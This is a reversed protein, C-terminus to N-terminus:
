LVEAHAATVLPHQDLQYYRMLWYAYLYGIAAVHRNRRPGTVTFTLFADDKWRFATPRFNNIWVPQPATGDVGPYGFRDLPFRRLHEVGDLLNREMLARTSNPKREVICDFAEADSLIAAWMFNCLANHQGDLYGLGYHMTQGLRYMFNRDLPVSAERCAHIDMALGIFAANTVHNRDNMGKVFPSAAVRQPQIIGKWPSEYYVHYKDRLRRFQDEIRARGQPDGDAFYWGLAVIEYAVQANFPVGVTAVVPTMDGYPTRNGHRDTLKYDNDIVHLVFDTIDSVALQQIHSPLDQWAHMMLAAYGAAMQNYTGKAPGYIYRYRTGDPAQYTTMEKREPSHEYVVCRAAHGPLETVEYLFHMGQILEAIRELTGPDKTCAYKFSLAALLSGNWTADDRGGLWMPPHNSEDPLDVGTAVLHFPLKHYRWMVWEFYEAKMDLPMDYYSGGHHDVIARSYEWLSQASYDNAEPPAPLLPVLATAPPSPDSGQSDLGAASPQARAPTCVYLVILTGLAAALTCRSASRRRWRSGSSAPGATHRQDRASSPLGATAGSKLGCVRLQQRGAHKRANRNM